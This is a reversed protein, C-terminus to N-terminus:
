KMMLGAIKITRGAVEMALWTVEDDSGKGSKIMFLMLYRGVLSM